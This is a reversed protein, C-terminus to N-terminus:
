RGDLCVSRLVRELESLYLPKALYADMGAALCV